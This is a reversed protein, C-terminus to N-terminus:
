SIPGLFPEGMYSDTAQDLSDPWVGSKIKRRQSLPRPTANWGIQEIYDYLQVAHGDPDRVFFNYDMGPFLEHPLEFVDCGKEKLFERGNRLQRYNCVQMGISFNNTHESLGLEKRLEIPYLAVAHHETNCRLFACRHGKFTVEETLSFGLTDTYFRVGADVDKLFLRVPGMHIVKFPRAIKVGDVDFVADPKDASKHRYGDMVKVGKAMAETTETYESIQPLTPAERFVRDRMEVPKSHGDWGVQEIGYYLENVNGDPDTIYTHWNSGPMDRGSRVTPVKKNAFWKIADNIQGLSGCQWTIQNTTVGKPWRGPPDSVERLDRNFLVMAHHDSGYRTFVGIPPGKVLKRQEDTLRHGADLIDTIDFGLFQTYFKVATEVDDSNFGFHGLRSIRFPRALKVGGVAFGGDGTPPAYFDDFDADNM